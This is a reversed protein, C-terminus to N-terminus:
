VHHLILVNWCKMLNSEPIYSQQIITHNDSFAYFHHDHPVGMMCPTYHLDIIQDTMSHAAVFESSYFAMAVTVQKKCYWQIPTQDILHLTGTM